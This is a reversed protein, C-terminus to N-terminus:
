LLNSLTPFYFKIFVTIAILGATFLATSLVRLDAQNVYSTFKINTFLWQLFTGGLATMVILIIFYFIMNIFQYKEKPTKIDNLQNNLKIDKVPDIVTLSNKDYNQAIEGNKNNIKQQLNNEAPWFWVILVVAIFTITLFATLHIKLYQM